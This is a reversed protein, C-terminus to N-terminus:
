LINSKKYLATYNAVSSKVQDQIELYDLYFGEHVQCGNSCLPYNRKLFNIDVIWNKIDFPMTGRFVLITADKSDDIAIYGVTDNSANRFRKVHTLHPYLKCPTCNWADISREPCYSSVTLQAFIKGLDPNYQGYVLVVALLV